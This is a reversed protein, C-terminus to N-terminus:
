FRTRAVDLHPSYPFQLSSARRRVCSNLASDAPRSTVSAGVVHGGKIAVCVDLTTHEPVNCSSLWAGNELVAAIAQTPLDAARNNGSFDVDQSAAAIASECSPLGSTATARGTEPPATPSPSPTFAHAPVPEELPAFSLPPAPVGVNNTALERAPEPARAPEPLSLASERARTRRSARPTTALPAEPALATDHALAQEANPLEAAATEPATLEALPLENSAPSSEPEAVAPETVAPPATPQEERVPRAPLPRWWERVVPPPPTPLALAAESQQPPASPQHHRVFEYVLGGIALWYGIAPLAFKPLRARARRAPAPAERLRIRPRLAFEVPM